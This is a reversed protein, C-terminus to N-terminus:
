VIWLLIPHVRTQERTERYTCQEYKICLAIASGHSFIRIM